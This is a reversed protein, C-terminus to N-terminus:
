EKGRGYKIRDYFRVGYWGITLLLSVITLFSIAGAVVGAWTIGALMLAALDLASKVKDSLFHIFEM